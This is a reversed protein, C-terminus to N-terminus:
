TRRRSPALLPAPAAKPTPNEADRAAEKPDRFAAKRRGRYAVRAQYVWKGHNKIRRVSM